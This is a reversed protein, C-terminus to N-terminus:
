SHSLSLFQAILTFGFLYINLWGVSVKHPVFHQWPLRLSQLFINRAPRPLVSFFFMVEFINERVCVYFCVSTNWRSHFITHSQSKQLISWSCMFLMKIIWEPGETWENTENILTSKDPPCWMKHFVFDSLQQYLHLTPLFIFFLLRLFAHFARKIIYSM